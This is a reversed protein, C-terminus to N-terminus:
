REPSGTTVSPLIRIIKSLPVRLKTLEPNYMAGEYSWEGSRRPSRPTEVMYHVGTEAIAIVKGRKKSRRRYTFEVRDGVKPRRKM